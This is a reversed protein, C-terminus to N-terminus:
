KTCTAIANWPGGDDPHALSHGWTGTFTNVDKGGAHNDTYTGTWYYVKDKLPGAGYKQTFDCKKNACIGDFVSHGWKDDFSGTLKWTGGPQGVWKVPWVFNGNTSEKTNTYSGKYECTWTDAWATAASGFTMAAVAVLVGKKIM